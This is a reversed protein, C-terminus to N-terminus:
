VSYDDSLYILKSRYNKIMTLNIQALDADDDSQEEPAVKHSKGKKTLKPKM